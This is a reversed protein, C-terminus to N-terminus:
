LKTRKTTGILIFKKENFAKFCGTGPCVESVTECRVVAIKM